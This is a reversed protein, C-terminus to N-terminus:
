FLRLLVDKLILAGSRFEQLSLVAQTGLLSSDEPIKKVYQETIRGESHQYAHRKQFVRRLCLMQEETLQDLIDIAKYKKFFRRVTFLEQFSHPRDKAALAKKSCFQEFTSVLDNYAHRLARSSYSSTSIENEIISLNADYILMNESRCGPCYGFIGFVQFLFKCHPCCLESDVKRERYGPVVPRARYNIPTHKITVFKNSRSDRSLKSFMKDIESYAYEKAKEVAAEHLFSMQDQTYLQDSSLLVGCYPCYMSPRLSSKHVRFYRRCSPVDCERGLFGEDTPVSISFFMESM